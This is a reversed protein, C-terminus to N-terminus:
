RYVDKRHKCHLLIVLSEQDNVQYRVRYNGIRIRYEDTYDTLKISGFPRPNEKLELIREIIRQRVSAPLNNRCPDLSL